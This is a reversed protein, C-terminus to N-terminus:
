LVQEWPFMMTHPRPDRDLRLQLKRRWGEARGEKRNIGRTSADAVLTSDYRIIPFPLTKIKTSAQLKARFFSDTGYHGCTREDYGGVKWYQDRTMAWSNPHSKEAGHRDLTPKGTAADLRHFKYVMNSKAVEATRVLTDEPVLHDMDTLFLWSGQAVFAGLNRAGNQHWLRDELVRFIRLPPLDAPRPVALAPSEQSGDDVLVVELWAKTSDSFKAWHEYQLSLMTPNNYFAYILTWRQM